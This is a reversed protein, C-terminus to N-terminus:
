IKVLPLIEVPISGVGLVGRGESGTPLIIPYAKRLKGFTNMQRSHCRQKLTVTLGRQTM